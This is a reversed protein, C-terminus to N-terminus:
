IDKINLYLNERAVPKLVLFPLYITAKSLSRVLSLDSGVCSIQVLGRVSVTGDVSKM